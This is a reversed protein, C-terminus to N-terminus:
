LEPPAEEAHFISVRCGQSQLQGADIAWHATWDSRPILRDPPNLTYYDVKNGFEARRFNSTASVVDALLSSAPMALIM